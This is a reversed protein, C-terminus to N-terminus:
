GAWRTTWTEVVTPAAPWAVSRQCVGRLVWAPAAWRVTVKSGPWNEKCPLKWTFYPLPARWPPCEQQGRHWSHFCPSLWRRGRGEARVVRGKDREVVVLSTDLVIAGANQRFLQDLVQHVSEVM